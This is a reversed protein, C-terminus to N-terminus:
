GRRRPPRIVADIADLLERAVFPKQLFGAFGAGVFRTTVDQQNYGSTLVVRVNPDRERLALMTQEGDLHPMTLDLLVAWIEDHHADFKRLADRGDVASIVRFGRRELIRQAARQVTPEDDVVLVVGAGESPALEV